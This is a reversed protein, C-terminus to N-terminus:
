KKPGNARGIRGTGEGHSRLGEENWDTPFQSYKKMFSLSSYCPSRASLLLINYTSKLIM